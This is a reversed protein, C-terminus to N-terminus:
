RKGGHDQGGQVTRGFMRTLDPNQLAASLAKVDPEQSPRGQFVHERYRNAPRPGEAMEKYDSTGLLAHGKIKHTM